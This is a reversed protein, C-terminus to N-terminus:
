AIRRRRAPAEDVLVDNWDRGKKGEPIPGEPMRIGAMIGMKWLREVLQTAAEGGRGSRDLDAYIVVKDVGAPPVFQEMLNASFAAWVNLGDLEAAAMATEVGEAIGLITAPPFLRIAGGALQSWSPHKMMKKAEVEVGPLSLKKGDPTLYIRLLSAPKGASTVMRALIAPHKGYDKADEDWYSLAPHFRLEAPARTLRIGRNAFYLRAPKADPHSLPLGEKWTVDLHQVARQDEEAQVKRKADLKRQYEAEHRAKEQETLGQRQVGGLYDAVQKVAETFMWGTAWQLTAFGDKFAGCTNCVVGGTEAADKFTRLNKQTSGPHVPCAVHKGPKEFAPAISPALAPIISDWRGAAMTRVAATWTKFDDLRSTVEASRQQRM